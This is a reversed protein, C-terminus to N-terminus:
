LPPGPGAAAGAHTAVRYGGTFTSRIAGLRRLTGQVVAAGAEESGGLKVLLRNTALNSSWTAMATLDYALPSRTGFRALAAVLLALEVTSAAPFPTGANWAASRGTAADHFWVASYGDFRDAVAALTASLRRDPAGAPVVHSVGAPLRW